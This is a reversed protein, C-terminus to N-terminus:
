KSNYYDLFGCYITFAMQKQYNPDILKKSEEANSLFGCEVIIAPITAKSLLYISSNAPKTERTNAPQMLGVVARKVYEALLNSEPNNTSYFIQTGFYKSSEFQNQHISILVNNPSSNAIEVRKHLDSVKKNRLSKADNDYIATDEERIMEVQFGALLFIEKLDKAIALNVDKELTKGDISQTGGDEGGHGADIIITPATEGKKAMISYEIPKAYNGVLISFLIILVGVASYLGIRKIM